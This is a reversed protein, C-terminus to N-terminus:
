PLANTMFDVILHNERDILLLNTGVFRYRVQKPLQPLALLLTPPMELLEATEPYVGNVKVPVTANEAESLDKLLQAREVGKYQSAIITRIMTEAEPTFIVGRRADKRSQLVAKLLAQKHTEIQTATAAKPLPVLKNEIAERQRAYDRVRSEFEAAVLKAEPSGPTQGNATAVSLLLFLFLSYYIAVNKM